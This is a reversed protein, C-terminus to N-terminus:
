DKKIRRLQKILFSLKSYSDHVFYKSKFMYCLDQDSDENSVVDFEYDSFDFMFKLFLKKLVKKNNKNKGESYLYWGKEKYEQYAFCAVIKIKKIDKNKKLVENIFLNYDGKLFRGTDIYDGARVHVVLEDKEPVDYGKRIIAKEAEDIFLQLNVPKNGNNKVLYNKLITDDYEESEMIEKMSDEYRGVKLFVIDGFRYHPNSKITKIKGIMENLKNEYKAGRFLIFCNVVYKFESVIFMIVDKLAVMSKWVPHKSDHRKIELKKRIKELM